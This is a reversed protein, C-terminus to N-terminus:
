NVQDTDTFMRTMTIIPPIFVVSPGTMPAANTVMKGESTFILGSQCSTSKPASNMPTITANGAPKTPSRATSARRATLATRPAGPGAGAGAGDRGCAAGSSMAEISVAARVRGAGATAPDCSLAASAAGIASPTAATSHRPITKPYALSLVATFPTSKTTLRPVIWPRIPGFPEPLLVSTSRM